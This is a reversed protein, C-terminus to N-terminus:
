HILSELTPGLWRLEFLGELPNCHLELSLAVARPGLGLTVPQKRCRFNRDSKSKGTRNEPDELVQKVM